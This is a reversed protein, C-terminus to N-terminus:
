VLPIFSLQLINEAEDKFFYPAIIRGAWTECWIPVRLPHMGKEHIISTVFQEDYTWRGGTFRTGRSKNVSRNLAAYLGTM